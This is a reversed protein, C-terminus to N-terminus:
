AIALFIYTGGDANLGAPASSTVTFGSALPDIYDTNTVDAATTNLLLYPDNGSVIGRASDYAFWDGTADTRKFLIFRAGSSFGCDVNIANGTGTYNGVKSIGALTAFLYNVYGQGYANIDGYNNVSFVTSTPQTSNLYVIDLGAAPASDDTELRLLRNSGSTNEWAYKSYVFWPSATTRNKLIMIEPEVTLNHNINRTVGTGEYAVVDFFGPARKFNWWSMPYGSYFPADVFGTNDFGRTLATTTEAGTSSSYLNRGSATANTSVGRLRDNFFSGGIATSSTDRSIQLDIPFGTTRTTGGVATAAFPMFVETGAEPPKNPRRIAMYIYTGSDRNFETAGSQVTFGTSTTLFQNQTNAAASGNGRKGEAATLNAFLLHNYGSASTYLPVNLGRMNDQIIWSHYASNSPDNSDTRKVMLWQPEFGLDITPGTTTSGNGTYSGCKIISEDEDTGFVPEDHAFLYAVYTDGDTNVDNSIGVTFETSTPATNNWYNASPGVEANTLDLIAAKTAGLSRHYVLWNTGVTNTCKVMIMGPTSGLDHAVTRNSGTGTYQVCTFFGPAKRFSWAVQTDSATNTNSNNGLTLGNSNFSTAVANAASGPSYEAEALNPYLSKYNGSGDVGRASDVVAHNRTASRSKLWVMGGEADLDQGTALALSSGTATYLFTSFVDDVYLSSAAAGAAGQILRLTTPDM